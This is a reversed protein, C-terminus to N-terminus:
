LAAPAVEAGSHDVVEGTTPQTVAPTPTEDVENKVFPNLPLDNRKRYGTYALGGGGALLTGTYIPAAAACVAVGNVAVIAGVGLAAMEFVNLDVDLGSADWDSLQDNSTELFDM